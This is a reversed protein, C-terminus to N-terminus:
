DTKKKEKEESLTYVGWVPNKKMDKALHDAKRRKREQSVEPSLVASITSSEEM